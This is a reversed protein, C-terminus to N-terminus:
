AYAAAALGDAPLAAHPAGHRAMFGAWLRRGIRDYRRMAAVLARREAAPVLPEPLLPDSVLERIVRGGLLFSEAMAAEERARGLRAESKELALRSAVYRERLAAADWLACARAQTEADFGHVAFVAAGPALGLARLEARVAHVGGRLNDPRLALERSFAAFGLLRLARAGAGRAIGTRQVALWGGEWRVLREELRRWSAVREDVPAAARGLRYRGREDRALADAALLRTVAVRLANEPIGFLGGAAVLAGVPMSEGRLTSILDLVLSRPSPPTPM